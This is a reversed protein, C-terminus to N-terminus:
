AAKPCAYAKWVSPPVLLKLRTFLLKAADLKLRAQEESDCLIGFGIRMRDAFIDVVHEGQAEYHVITKTGRQEEHLKTFQELAVLLVSLSERTQGTYEDALGAWIIEDM